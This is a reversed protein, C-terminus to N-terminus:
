EILLTGKGINTNVNVLAKIEKVTITHTFFVVCPWYGETSKCLRIYYLYHLLVPICVYIYLM